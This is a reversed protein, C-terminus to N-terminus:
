SHKLAFAAILTEYGLPNAFQPTWSGASAQVGWEILYHAESGVLKGNSVRSYGSQTVPPSGATGDLTADTGLNLGNASKQLGIAFVADAGTTVIPATVAPSAVSIATAAGDVTVGTMDGIDFVQFNIGGDFVPKGAALDLPAVIGDQYVSNLNVAYTGPNASACVWVYLCPYYGDLNWDCTQWQSESGPPSMIPAYDGGALIISAVLVWDNVSGGGTPVTIAENAAITVAGNGGGVALARGNLTGGDLTISAYALINGQMTNNDGVQTFSSGVVWVVNAAQAGNVLIISAGSELTTTSASIFVFVANPNGQADLTISTPIDLAGGSYVGAHYVGVGGGGNNTSLDALGTQTPTQAAYYNYAALGASRGASAASPNAITAPPPNFGTYTATPVSGIDGGTITTGSGANTIGSYALIAFSAALGLQATVADPTVTSNDSITPTPIFDNIGQLYGFETTAGHLQDFPALSKLGFAVAVLADGSAATVYVNDGQNSSQLKEIKSAYQPPYTGSIASQLIPQGM